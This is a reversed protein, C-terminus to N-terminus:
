DLLKTFVALDHPAFADNSDNAAVFSMFLPLSSTFHPAPSHKFCYEMVGIVGDQQSLSM